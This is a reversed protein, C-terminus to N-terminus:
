RGELWDRMTRRLFMRREAAHVRGTPTITWLVGVDDEILRAAGTASLSLEAKYRKGRGFMADRIGRADTRALEALRSPYASGVRDLALLVRDRLESRNSSRRLRPDIRFM